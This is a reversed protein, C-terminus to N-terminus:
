HRRIAVRSNSGGEAVIGERGLHGSQMVVGINQTEAGADNTGPHGQLDNIDKELARKFAIAM